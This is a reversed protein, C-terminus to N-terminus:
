KNRWLEYKQVDLLIKEDETLKDLAKLKEEIFDPTFSFSIDNFPPHPFTSINYLGWDMYNGTKRFMLCFILTPNLPSSPSCDIDEIIQIHFEDGDYTKADPIHNLAEKLKELPISKNAM